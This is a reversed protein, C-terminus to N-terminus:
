WSHNVSPVGFLPARQRARRKAGTREAFVDGTLANYKRSSEAKPSYLARARVATGRWFFLSLSSVNFVTACRWSRARAAAAAKGVKARSTSVIAARYFM